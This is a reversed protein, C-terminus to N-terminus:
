EGLCLTTDFEGCTEYSVSGGYCAAGGYEPVPDDCARKRKHVGVNGTCKCNGWEGWEGWGGDVSCFCAFRIITCAM